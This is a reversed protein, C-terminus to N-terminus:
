FKELFTEIVTKDDESLGYLQYILENIKEELQDIPTAKIKQLTKKVRDLIENVISNNRPVRIEITDNQTVKRNRLALALYRAKEKTDVWISDEGESPYVVYGKGPLGSLSPKLKSHDASFSHKIEDFEEGKLRYENVYTEPFKEVLRQPEVQQLIREVKQIIQSVLRKDQATKLTKIPLSGLYVGNFSIYGGAVHTSAYKTLYYFNMLRSNLLGLIYKSNMKMSSVTYIGVVAYGEDDYAATLRTDNGRIVIKQNKFLNWKGDSIVDPDYLLYPHNLTKKISNVRIGWRIRYPKINRCVIYKVFQSPSRPIEDTLLNGWAYYDSSRPTGCSIVSIRALNVGAVEIKNLVGLLKPTVHVEFRFEPSKYFVSQDIEFIEYDGFDGAKKSPTVKSLEKLLSIDDKRVLVVKIKETFRNKIKTDKVFSDTKRELITIAPYIAPLDFIHANSVDTISVLQSNNLILPRLKKGYERIFYKNSTIYGLKGGKKLWRIGREIFCIYIDFDGTPSIWTKRLYKKYESAMHHVRVYPPNGAVFDYQNQLYNKLLAALIADEISKVLRGDEFESQIRKIEHLIHDAYPKFFNALLAFDKDKLYERLPGLLAKEPVHKGKERLQVKIADFIAQLTCFYEDLNYLPLMQSLIKGWSPLIIDVSISSESDIQMPLTVPFVIDEETEALQRQRQFEPPLMEMTLSDTRFIPIRRLYFTRPAEELAKKFYPVLELMFRTRAILCAFPHIDFGVIKPSNCLERLVYAWGHQKAKQKAETLYRKLAEVIFTGSGCAPDLLRRSGINKYGIADLIYNVVEVPTYFEGLAKRTDKDFYKQYLDGLPDGAVERFDFKYLMFIIKASAESFDELRKDVSERLLESSSKQMSERFGDRWWGFIDDEFLSYVLQDRMERIVNILVLPYAVLPIQGRVQRIKQLTFNSVSIGSFDLDECAKAVILRALLAHATELCFMFRFVDRKERLFPAWSDPIKKPKRALSRQWFGYAGKLFKSRPYVFDFLEVLSTLLLGFVSDEELKFTELFDEKALETKLSLKEVSSFYEEVRSYLTIDYEPKKLVRFLEECQKQSIKSLDVTLIREPNEGIKKYVMFKWGNTLVGYRAKLPLVYRNWLQSLADSLTRHSPRKAELVFVANQYEDRCVYDAKKRKGPVVRQARVDKGFKKYGLKRFFKSTILVGYLEPESMLPNENVRRYIYELCERM